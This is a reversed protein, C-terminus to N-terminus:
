EAFYVSKPWDQSTLLRFYQIISKFVYQNKILGEKVFLRHVEPLRSFPVASFYHHYIHYFFNLHPFILSEWWSPIIIATSTELPANPIYVHECIAGVRIFVQLVTLLPLLWYLLFINWSHTFTFITAALALYIFKLWPYSPGLRKINLTGIKINKGIVTKILNLAFLDTLFLLLLSTLKMPFTWDKGSKRILDPDRDSFYFKHHTLHVRAYSEVSVFLLPYAVFCNAILDGWRSKIGLYHAQEHMLLGLALQRGAVVFIVLLTVLFNHFHVAAYAAIVITLWTKLIRWAYGIPDPRSLQSIRKRSESSLANPGDEPLCSPLPSSVKIQNPKNNQM